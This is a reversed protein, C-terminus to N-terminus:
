RLKGSLSMASFPLFHPISPSCLLLSSPPSPPAPPDTSTHLPHIRGRNRRRHRLHPRPLCSTCSCTKQGQSKKTEVGEGGGEEAQSLFSFLFFSFFVELVTVSQSLSRLRASVSGFMGEGDARCLTVITSLRSVSDREAPRLGGIEKLSLSLPLLTSSFPPM